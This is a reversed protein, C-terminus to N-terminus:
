RPYPHKKRFAALSISRGAEQDAIGQTVSEQFEASDIVDKIHQPLNENGPLGSWKAGIPPLM